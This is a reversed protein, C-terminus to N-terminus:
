RLRKWKSVTLGTNGGASTKQPWHKKSFVNRAEVLCSFGVEAIKSRMKKLIFTTSKLLKCAADNFVQHELPIKRNSQLQTIM